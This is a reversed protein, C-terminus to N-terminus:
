SVVLIKGVASYSSNEDSPSVMIHYVGSKVRNFNSDSIDWLIDFGTMIGLEKVLHGYSDTIKVFSGQPIDTITVYGSYEPRVPNPYVKVDAKTSASQAKPLAYEAYGSSTSIMLSNNESNYGIGVVNDSPIPSNSTNFEELIERGDASTGVIGGGYLAFWKRGDGDSTMHSVASGDLLYDALNTGDNRPVKVRYVTNDGAVVKSPILYFVGTQHGVWVYGTSPDEWLFRIRGIDSLENGDSDHISSIFYTKDDSADTPTGATDILLLNGKGNAYSSYLMLGKGTKLIPIACPMNTNEDYVNWEVSKPLRVDKASTTARRDEATWCIFHPMATETSNNWYYMWLNGAADFFPASITRYISSPLFDLVVDNEQLNSSGPKRFHLIDKPDNLNLRAFGQHYSTVYVYENKDPDVVFGNTATLVNSRSPNTYAPAYNTWRGQKYGSLQMPNYSSLLTTLYSYGYGLMLFGKSPHNAFSTTLYTAPGDPLMWDRTVSWNGGTNKISTLGKRMEGVWFESLNTTSAAGSQYAEPLVASDIAGDKGICYVNGGGTVVVGKTSLDINNFPGTLVNEVEMGSASLKLLGAKRSNKEGSIILGLNDNLPLINVGNDLETETTYQDLSLRPSSVPASLIENDKIAVYKDGIRSFSQLPVGYIRSEAVEYKKDNIAVYGFDTALYLRDKEADVAMSNVHQSYSLETRSFDSINAVTGDNYLLDINNDTYLVALYGKDPNYIVDSVTNGNLINTTSLAMLEEGKKDYRFLSLFTEYKNSEQTNRSTFYVFDPTEVVHAVEEDFIPHIRWNVDAAKGTFYLSM